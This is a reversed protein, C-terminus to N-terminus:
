QKKISNVAVIILKALNCIDIQSLESTIETLIKVIDKLVLDDDNNLLLLNEIESATKSLVKQDVDGRLINEILIITANTNIPKGQLLKTITSSIIASLSGSFIGAYLTESRFTFDYIVFIMDYLFYLVIAMLFPIYVTINKPLNNFFKNLTLSATCVIVAIVMTPLSYSTLIDQLLLNM